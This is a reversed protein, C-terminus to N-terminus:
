ETRKGKDGDEEEAEKEATEGSDQQKREGKEAFDATKSVERKKQM